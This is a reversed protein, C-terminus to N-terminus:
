EADRNPEKEAKKRECLVSIACSLDGALDNEACALAQRIANKFAKADSSGHAKIVPKRVGLIPAGGFETADFNKKVDGLYPKVALGAARTVANRYFLDKMTKLMLKGMGEMTKLLVNGSFGDCVLVDCADQMVRNGEVNGVFNLTPNSSLRRFAEIQLPTGKTEESGTNLLGVRPNEVSMAQKLYVAGLVAFQELDDASVNLSAGSDLLLVPPHMPLLAAIAPSHVGGIKKVILTAGAFLAGTNGTSVMADGKGEALMGLSLGMSSDAKGRRVVIPADEMTIVTETHVIEFRDPDWGNETAVRQIQGRDGVLVLECALEDAALYAGKVTEAPAHDGGMVDVLIRKM